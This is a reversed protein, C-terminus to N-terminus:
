DAENIDTERLVKPDPVPRVLKGSARMVDVADFAESAIGLAPELLEVPNRGASEIEM